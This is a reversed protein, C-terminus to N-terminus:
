VISFSSVSLGSLAAEGGAKLTVAVTVANDYNGDVEVWIFIQVNISNPMIFSTDISAYSGPVVYSSSSKLLTNGGNLEWVEISIIHGISDNNNVKIAVQVSDGAAAFAPLLQGNVLINVSTYAM